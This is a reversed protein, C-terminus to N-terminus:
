RNFFSKTKVFHCQIGNLNYVYETDTEVVDDINVNNSKLMNEFDIKSKETLEKNYETYDYTNIQYENIIEKLEEITKSSKFYEKAVNSNKTADIYRNIKNKLNEIEYHNKRKKEEILRLTEREDKDYHKTISLEKIVKLLIPKSKSNIGSLRKNSKELFSAIDFILEDKTLKSFDVEENQIEKVEEKQTEEVKLVEKSKILNLYIDVLEKKNKKYIGSLKPAKTRIFDILEQRTKNDEM